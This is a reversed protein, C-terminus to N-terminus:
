GLAFVMYIRTVLDTARFIAKEKFYFSCYQVVRQCSIAKDPPNWKQPKGWSPNCLRNKKSGEDMTAPM